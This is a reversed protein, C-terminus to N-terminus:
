FPLFPNARGPKVETTTGTVQPLVLNKFQPDQFIATDLKIEKLRKLETLRAELEADEVIEETTTEGAFYQFWFYLGGALVAVLLIFLITQKSMSNSASQSRSICDV